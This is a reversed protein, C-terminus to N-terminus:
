SFFISKIISFFKRIPPFATPFCGYFEWIFPCNKIIKYFCFVASSFESFPLILQCSHVKIWCGHFHITNCNLCNLCNGCRGKNCAVQFFFVRRKHDPLCSASFSLKCFTFREFYKLKLKKEKVM